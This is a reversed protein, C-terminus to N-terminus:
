RIPVLTENESSKTQVVIPLKWGIVKDDFAMAVPEAVASDEFYFGFTEENKNFYTMFDEFLKQCKSLQKLYDEDDGKDLFYVDMNTRLQGPEITSSGLAVFMLPYKWNNATNKQPLQTAFQAIGIYSTQFAQFAKIIQALSKEM